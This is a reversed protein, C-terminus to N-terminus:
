GAAGAPPTLWTRIAGDRLELLSWILRAIAGDLNETARCPRVDIAIDGDSACRARVLNTVTRTDKDSWRCDGQVILADPPFAGAIMALQEALSRIARMRTLSDIDAQSLVGNISAPANKGRRGLGPLAMDGFHGDPLVRGHPPYGDVVFNISVRAGHRLSCALLRKTAGIRSNWGARALTDGEASVQVPIGFKRTLNEGLPLSEWAPVQLCSTVLRGDHSFNGPLVVGIGAWPAGPSPLVAGIQRMLAELIEWQGWVALPAQGRPACPQGGLNATQWSIGSQHVEIALVRRYDWNFQVPVCPRGMAGGQPRGCVVLERQRLLALQQVVVPHSLGTRARLEAQNAATGGLLSAAIRWIAPMFVDNEQISPEIRM